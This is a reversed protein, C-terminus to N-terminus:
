GISSVGIVGQVLQRCLDPILCPVHHIVLESELEGVVLRVPVPSLCPRVIPLTEM